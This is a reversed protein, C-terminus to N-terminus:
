YDALKLYIRQLDSVGPAHLYEGGSAKAIRRLIDENLSVSKGLFKVHAGKLTGMGITFVKIGKQSGAIKDPNSNDFEDAGDSLLVVAQRPSNFRALEQFALQLAVGLSTGSHTISLKLISAAVADLNADLPHIVTATGGFGIVGVRDSYNQTVKRRTFMLAAEKAAELRTPPYDAAEMSGSTDVCLIIDVAQKGIPPQLGPKWNSLLNHEDPPSAMLNLGAADELDKETISIIEDSMNMM